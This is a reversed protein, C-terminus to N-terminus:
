IENQFNYRDGSVLSTRNFGLGKIGTQCDDGAFGPRCSCDYRNVGDVCTGGNLCPISACENTGLNSFLFSFGHENNITHRM